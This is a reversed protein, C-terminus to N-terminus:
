CLRPRMDPFAPIIGNGKAICEELTEIERNEDAAKMKRGLWTRYQYITYTKSNFNSIAVHGKNPMLIYAYDATKSSNGIWPWGDAPQISDERSKFFVELNNLFEAASSSQLITKPIKNPMGHWEISGHWVLVDDTNIYFDARTGM